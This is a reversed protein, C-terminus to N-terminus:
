GFDASALCDGNLNCKEVTCLDHRAHQKVYQTKNSEPCRRDSLKVVEYTINFGRSATSQRCEDAPGSVPVHLELVLWSDGCVTAVYKTTRRVLDTNLHQDAELGGLLSGQESPPREWYCQVVGRTVNLCIYFSSYRLEGVLHNQTLYVFVAHNDPARILWTAAHPTVRRVWPPDTFGESTIVGHSTSNGDIWYLESESSWLFRSPQSVGNAVSVALLLALLPSRLGGCWGGAM